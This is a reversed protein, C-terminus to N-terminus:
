DLKAPAAAAATATEKSSKKRELLAKRDKDLHIKTIVVKSPHIGIPVSSGNSKERVVRDIHIVYKKRYVTVVKGERGKHTGRTIRVEDDKRIPMANVNYKAHLEADLPASM